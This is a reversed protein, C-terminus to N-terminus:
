DHHGSFTKAEEYSFVPGDTCVFKDDLYCRGCKGIGCKMYREFSIFINEDRVNRENLTEVVYPYMAPPGCVFAATTPPTFSIRSVLETVVGTEHEWENDRQDVTLLTDVSDDNWEGSEELYLMDDPTRAGLLCKVTVDFDERLFKRILPRLPVIGIGGGIILLYEYDNLIELPFGNGYPGRVGVSDSEELEFLASTVEGMERVTLELQRDEGDWGAVSFPAEGYGAVTLEVFQGPSCNFDSRFPEEVLELSYTLTDSTEERIDRIKAEYPYYENEM